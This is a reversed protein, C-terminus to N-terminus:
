KVQEAFFQPEIIGRAIYIRQLRQCFKTNMINDLNKYTQYLYLAQDKTEVLHEGGPFCIAMYKPNKDSYKLYLYSPRNTTIIFESTHYRFLRTLRRASLSSDDYKSNQQEMFKINYKKFIQDLTIVENDNIRIFGYNKNGYGIIALQIAAKYVLEQGELPLAKYNQLIKSENYTDTSGLDEPKVNIYNITKTLDNKTLYQPLNQQEM